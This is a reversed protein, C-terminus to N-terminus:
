VLNLTTGGNYTNATAITLAGTGSKTLSGATIGYGGDSTLTYNKTSNNFVVSATSVNANTIKIDTTGTASDDFIVADGVLFDTATGASQLKWNSNGGVTETTWSGNQGGTWIPTDGAISLTIAHGSNGLTATQRIGLGAVDGKTFGALGQGGLSGYRILDYTASNAWALPPAANVTVLGTANVAGTTLTGSVILGAAGTGSTNVNVTAAGNFTLSDITLAGTDGNGNTVVAGTGDGATVAGVTGTGDLTGSANYAYLLRETDCIQKWRSASEGLPVAPYSSGLTQESDPAYELPSQQSADRYFFDAVGKWLADTWGTPTAPYGTLTSEPVCSLWIVNTGPVSSTQVFKAGSGTVIISSSKNIEGSGSLVISGAQITTRGTYNSSGSLLWSGTGQKLIGGGTGERIGGDAIGGAFTVSANTLGITLMSAGLYVRGSGELVGLKVLDDQSIDLSSSSEALNVSAGAGSANDRFVVMASTGTTVIKSSGADSSSIFFVKAADGSVTIRANGANSSYDFVARASSGTVAIIANQANSKDNFWLGNGGITFNADGATATDWFVIEPYTGTTRIQANAATSSNSFSLHSNNITINANGASATDWFQVAGRDWINTGTWTSTIQANAATSSYNFGIYGDSNNIVTNGASSGNFELHWYNTIPGSIALPTVAPLDIILDGSNNVGSSMAIGSGPTRIIGDGIQVTGSNIITAGTYTNSGTFIVKGWGGASTVVLDGTGSIESSVIIISHDALNFALGSTGILTGGSITSAVGTLSRVTGSTLTLTNSIALESHPNLTLSLASLTGGSLQSIGLLILDKDFPQAGTTTLSAGSLTTIGTVHVSGADVTNGFTANGTNLLAGVGSVSGNYTGNGTVTLDHVGGAVTSGFTVASGALTTDQGLTIASDYSQVGSTAVSRGNIATVGTVHVSGASVTDGFIANGINSLNKVGSVAGTYTVSSYMGTATVNLDHGGGALTSAFTINGSISRAGAAGSLMVAGDFLQSGGTTISAGLNITPATLLFSATGGGTVASNINISSTSALSLVTNGNLLSSVQGSTIVSSQGPFDNVAINGTIDDGTTGDGNLDPLNAKLTLSSAGLCEPALCLASFTLAAAALKSFANKHATTSLLLPM